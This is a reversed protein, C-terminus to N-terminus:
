LHTNTRLLGTDAKESPVRRRSALGVTSLGDAQPLSLFRASGADGVSAVSQAM